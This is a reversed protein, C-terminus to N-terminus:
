RQEEYTSEQRRSFIRTALSTLCLHQASLSSDINRLVFTISSNWREQHCPWNHRCRALDIIHMNVNNAWESLCCAWHITHRRYALLLPLWLLLLTMNRRIVRIFSLWFCPMFKRRCVISFLISMKWKTNDNKVQTCRHSKGHLSCGCMCVRLGARVCNILHCYIHM